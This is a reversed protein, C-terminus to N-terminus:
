LNASWFFILVAINHTKKEFIEQKLDLPDNKPSVNQPLNM